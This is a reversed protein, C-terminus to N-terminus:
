VEKVVSPVQTLEQFYRLVTIGRETVSYIESRKKITRKEVLDQKILFVLFNRLISYSVNTKYMIHTLKLPGTQALVKLINVYMELKSRGMQPVVRKELKM